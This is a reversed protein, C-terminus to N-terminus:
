RDWLNTTLRLCDPSSGDCVTPKLSARTVNLVWLETGAQAGARYFACWVDPPVGPRAVGSSCGTGTRGALGVAGSVLHHVAPPPAPAEIPPLTGDCGLLFIVAVLLKM